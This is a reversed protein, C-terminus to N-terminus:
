KMRCYSSAETRNLVMESSQTFRHHTDQWVGVGLCCFHLFRANGLKNSDHKAGRSAERPKDLFELTSVATSSFLALM